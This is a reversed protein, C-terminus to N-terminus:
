AAATSFSCGNHSTVLWQATSLAIARFSTGLVGPMVVRIQATTAAVAGFTVATATSANVTVGFTSGNLKVAVEIEEGATPVSLIFNAAATTSSTGLEIIGRASLATSAATSQTIGTRKVQVTTVSATSSITPATLLTTSSLTPVTMSGTSVAHHFYLDTSAATRADIPRKFKIKGM